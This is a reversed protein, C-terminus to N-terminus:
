ASRRGRRQDLQQAMDQVRVSLRYLSRSLGRAIGYGGLLGGLPGGLGLLLMTLHLRRTFRGSEQAARDMQEENMRLYSGAPTPSTASPTPTPWSATTSSPAAASRGRGPGTRVRGPLPRLGDRIAKVQAQEAPTYAPEEARGLWDEFARQDSESTGWCAPDPDILYLFCHFRLQRASIELQQAAQM